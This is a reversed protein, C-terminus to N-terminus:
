FGFHLWDTGFIISFVVCIFIVFLVTGFLCGCCGGRKAGFREQGWDYVKKVLFLQLLGSRCGPNNNNDRTM